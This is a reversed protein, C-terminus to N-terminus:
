TIVPGTLLYSIDQTDYNPRESIDASRSDSFGSKSHDTFMYFKINQKSDQIIKASKGMKHHRRITKASQFYFLYLIMFSCYFEVFDYLYQKLTQYHLTRALENFNFIQLIPSAIDRSLIATLEFFVLIYILSVVCIHICTWEREQARM